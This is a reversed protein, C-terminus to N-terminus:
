PWTMIKRQKCSTALCESVGQRLHLLQLGKVERTLELIGCWWTSVTFLRLQHRSAVELRLHVASRCPLLLM